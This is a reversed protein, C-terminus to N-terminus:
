GRPRPLAGQRGEQLLKSTAGEIRNELDAMFTKRDMGLSMPDLFEIVITGPKKAFSRRGWFLGSNLAVPVIPVDAQKYIAAVGPHYPLKQGVPSRSGEPFIVLPRGTQFIALSGRVMQKLASAGGDRDIAVMKDKKLMWGYFPIKLLQKKMVYSPDNLLMFFIGTDWASQHKSIILAPGSPINHRGRVEINLGVVVKLIAMVMVMWYRLGHSVVTRPLVLSLVMLMCFLTSIGFFLINFIVSRIYIM